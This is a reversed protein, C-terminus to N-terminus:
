WKQGREFDGRLWGDSLDIESRPCTNMSVECELHMRGTQLENESAYVRKFHKEKIKILEGCWECSYNKRGIPHSTSLETYNM